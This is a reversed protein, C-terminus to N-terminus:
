RFALAAARRCPSSIAGRELILPVRPALDAARERCCARELFAEELLTEPFAEPFFGVELFAGAFFAERLFDAELALDVDRPARLRRQDHFGGQPERQRLEVQQDPVHMA